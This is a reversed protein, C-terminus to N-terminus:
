VDSFVARRVPGSADDAPRAQLYRIDVQTTQPYGLSADIEVSFGVVQVDRGLVDDQDGRQIGAVAVGHIALQM